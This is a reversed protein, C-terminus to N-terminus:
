FGFLEGAEVDVFRTPGEAWALLLCGHDSRISARAGDEIVFFDGARRREGDIELGGGILFLDIPASTVLPPVVTGPLLRLQVHRRDLGTGAYDFVLRRQVGGVRSALWPLGELPVNLDPLVEPAPNVIDGAAAGTHLTEGRAADESPYIVPAELRSAMLTPVYAIASHTAGALNIGVEGMAATGQYDTLGGALFLSFAPGLHQHLGTAAFPEFELYGLFQGSERSARVAALRMGPKETPQWALDERAYGYVGRAPRSQLIQTM